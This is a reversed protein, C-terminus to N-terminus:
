FLNEIKQDVLDTAKLTLDSVDIQPPTPGHVPGTSDARMALAASAVLIGAVLTALLAAKPNLM